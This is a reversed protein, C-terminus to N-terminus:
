RGSSDALRGDHSEKIVHVGRPIKTLTLKQIGADAGVRTTPAPPNVASIPPPRFTIFTKPGIPKRASTRARVMGFKLWSVILQGFHRASQQEVPAFALLSFFCFLPQETSCTPCTPM